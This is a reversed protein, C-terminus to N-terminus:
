KKRHNKRVLLPGHGVPGRFVGSPLKYAFYEFSLFLFILSFRHSYSGHNQIRQEIREEESESGSALYDKVDLDKLEEKSFDRM